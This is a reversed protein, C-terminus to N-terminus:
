TPRANADPGRPAPCFRARLQEKFQQLRARQGNRQARLRWALPNLIWPWPHKRWGDYRRQRRRLEATETRLTEVLPLWEGPGDTRTAELALEFFHEVLQTMMERDPESSKPHVLFQSVVSPTVAFQTRLAHRVAWATDGCHGYETPFPHRKLADTRYLNGASSGLIGQPLALVTAFFAQPSALATPCTLRQEEIWHHIPWREENLVRGDPAFFRPPSLTVDAQFKEATAVLHRLGDATIIDGVTSVHTYKSTIQSIGFNWSQYLGRPHTLFRVRPKNLQEKLLALTGDESFSDVVVIEEVLVAWERVAALHAPLYARCNFTPLVVGIPLRDNM